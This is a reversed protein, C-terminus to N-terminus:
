MLLIRRSAVVSSCPQALSWGGPLCSMLLLSIFILIHSSRTTSQCYIFVSYLLPISLDCHYPTSPIFTFIPHIHCLNLYPPYIHPPLYIFIFSSPHLIFFSSPSSSSWLLLLCPRYAPSWWSLTDTSSRPDTGLLTCSIVAPIEGPVDLSCM